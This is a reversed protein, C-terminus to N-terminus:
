ESCYFHHLIFHIFRYSLQELTERNNGEERHSRQRLFTISHRGRGDPSRALGNDKGFGILRLYVDADKRLRRRRLGGPGLIGPLYVRYDGRKPLYESGRGIYLGDSVRETGRVSVRPLAALRPDGAVGRRVDHLHLGAVQRLNPRHDVRRRLRARIINLAKLEHELVVLGDPRLGKAFRRQLRLRFGVREGGRESESDDAHEM